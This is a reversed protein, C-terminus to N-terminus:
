GGAVELLRDALAALEESGQLVALWRRPIADVGYRAGALAGAVAGTTDTDGGLNVAEVVTEEFDDHRAFSWLAAQLTELVFGGSRVDPRELGPIASVVARVEDHEVAAAAVLPDSVGELVAVLARDFAVCSETALPSAHTIASVERGARDLSAPDRRCALALPATRMLSGNGAGLGGDGGHTMRGAERWSAGDILHRISAATTNGVDKPRGRYWDVFGAAIDAPDVRGLRAISRAIVLTLQTDDTVEGPALHLWGGGIMERLRGHTGRIAGATMFEVPGGLADGVALGLLCGRYRDVLSPASM